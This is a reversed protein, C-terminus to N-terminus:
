RSQLVLERAYPLLREVIVGVGRGNPHIGDRQNLAPKMAVGELFFPYFLVGFREALRGFIANFRRGYDRGMNAPAYMGCLLVPINREALRALIAALNAATEGPAIGRLADNGGLEVIVVDPKARLAWGLRARGGATTDGSVGGNIVKVALGDSRLAAELRAPFADRAKLGFGATLSDGLVLLRTEGSAPDAFAFCLCLLFVAAGNVLRVARPYRSPPGRGTSPLANGSEGNGTSPAKM